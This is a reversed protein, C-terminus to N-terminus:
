SGDVEEEQWRTESLADKLPSLRLIGALQPVPAPKFIQARGTQHM